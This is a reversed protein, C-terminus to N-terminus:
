IIQEGGIRGRRIPALLIFLKATFDFLEAKQGNSWFKAKKARFWQFWLKAKFNFTKDLHIHTVIKSSKFFILLNSHGM